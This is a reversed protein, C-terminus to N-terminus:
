KSTLSSRIEAFPTWARASHGVILKILDGLNELGYDSVVSMLSQM